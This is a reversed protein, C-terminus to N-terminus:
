SNINGIKFHPTVHNIQNNQKKTSFIKVEKRYFRMSLVINAM